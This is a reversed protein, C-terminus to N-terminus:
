HKERQLFTAAEEATYGMFVPGNFNINIVSPQSRETKKEGKRAKEQPRNRHHQEGGGEEEEEEEEQKDEPAKPVYEDNDDDDVDNARPDQTRNHSTESNARPLSTPNHSDYAHRQREISMMSPPSTPPLKDDAAAAAAASPSLPTNKQASAPVAIGWPRSPSEGLRIEKLSIPPSPQRNFYNSRREECDVDPDPGPDPDEPKNDHSNVHVSSQDHLNGHEQQQQQQEAAWKAIENKGTEGERENDDAVGDKREHQLLPQHKMGLGHIMTVLSGYKADLLRLSQENSQYRKVCIEHSRPIEHKHTEFYEAVEEAPRADLMRIPCKDPSSGTVSAAAAPPQPPPSPPTLDQQSAQPPSGLIAVDTDADDTYPERRTEPPTPLSNPRITRSPTMTFPQQSEITDENVAMMSAFPCIIKKRKEDFDRSGIDPHGDPMSPKAQMDVFREANGRAM